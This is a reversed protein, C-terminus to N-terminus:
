SRWSSTSRAGLGAGMMSRRKAGYVEGQFVRKVLQEAGLGLSRPIHSDQGGVHGAVRGIKVDSCCVFIARVALLWKQSGIMM